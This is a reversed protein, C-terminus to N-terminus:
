PFAAGPMLWAEGVSGAEMHTVGAPLVVLANGEILSLLVGSDQSGTPTACYEGDEMWVRARLYSERGDSEFTEQLRVQVRHRLTEELGGLRDLAPRCFVEFTVIASVPNGPLGMFSVGRYRGILIPKGPRMNVRWLSVTGHRLLAERVCDTAGMSVGATTLILDVQMRAAEDLRRVVATLDDPVIGLHVPEAGVLRCATLLAFGNADRIKGPSLPEDPSLLESGTSLIAVRPIRIVAPNAVGLAALMGVDQPRLRRGAKVVCSGKRVDNGVRRVHEGSGFAKLVRTTSTLPEGAMPGPKDTYEVPVVADAGDPLPAGTSIRSAEGHGIRGELVRGATADGVVRLLVPSEPSATLVDQSRVAYGDMASNDFPPLDQKSVVDEALVRGGAQELPVHEVPLPRLSELLKQLAEAVSMLSPATLDDM